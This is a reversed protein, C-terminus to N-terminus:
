IENHSFTACLPIALSICMTSGTGTSLRLGTTMAGVLVKYTYVRDGSREGTQTLGKCNLRIRIGAMHEISTSRKKSPVCVEVRFALWGALWDSPRGVDVGKGGNHNHPQQNTIRASPVRRQRSGGSSVQLNTFHQTKFINGALQKAWM